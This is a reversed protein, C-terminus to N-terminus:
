MMLTFVLFSFFRTRDIWAFYVTAKNSRRVDFVFM